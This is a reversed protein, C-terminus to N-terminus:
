PKRARQHLVEETLIGTLWVQKKPRQARQPHNKQKVRQILTMRPTSMWPILIQRFLVRWTRRSPSHHQLRRWLLTRMRPGLLRTRPNWHHQQRVASLGRPILNLRTPVIASVRTGKALSHRHSPDKDEEILTPNMIRKTQGNMSHSAIMSGVSQFTGHVAIIRNLRRTRMTAWLKQSGNTMLTQATGTIFLCKRTRRKWPAFGNREMPAGKSKQPNTSLTHPTNPM